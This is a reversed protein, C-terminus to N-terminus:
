PTVVSEGGARTCLSQYIKADIQNLNAQLQAAIVHERHARRTAQIAAVELYAVQEALRIEADSWVRPGRMM